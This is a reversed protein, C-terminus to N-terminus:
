VRHFSVAGFATGDGLGGEGGQGGAGEQAKDLAEALEM